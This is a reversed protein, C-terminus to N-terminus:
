KKGGQDKLAKRVALGLTKLTYPKYLFQMAGLKQAELIRVPDAHGSVIIAKQDPRIELIKRFVELGDADPEMRMDLLVLDAKKKCLYALAQEQGSVVDVKYKLSSLLSFAIERQERVDDIVLITEGRGQIDVNEEPNRPDGADARASPFYLTIRTGANKQSRIDIFGGLDKVTGWVVSMGLGTGSKGMKKRTYFPEFIREMDQRSIGRGTDSVCVTVYDGEPIIEYGAHPKELTVNKTTVTVTGTDEISEVANSILNMLSKSIYVPSGQIHVLNPDLEATVAVGPHSARLERFEPSKLFESLIRNIDVDIRTPAGLRALSLLDQVIAVAKTGAERMTLVPRRLPNDEPLQLLLLDPYTVIASLINNLDHAVGGALTGIAEMKKARQLQAELKKELTVDRLMVLITGEAYEGTVPMAKISVQKRNIEVLRESAVERGTSAAEAIQARIGARDGRGFLKVFDSSLLDEEAVGIISLAAPNAFVVTAGNVLEVLGESMNHLVTEYHKKSTLLEKTIEREFLDENGIVSGKLQRGRGREIERIVFDINKSLKDFPGKAIFVDASCADFSAGEEAVIASLVAIFCKATEPKSRIIQCLKDGSINPMVLDIFVIDPTRNKLLDLASLGDVATFVRYGKKELLDCMFKLLVPHNDVVLIEKM